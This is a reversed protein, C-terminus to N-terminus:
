VKGKEVAGPKTAPPLKPVTPTSPKLVLRGRVTAYRLGHWAAGIRALQKRAKRAFEHPDDYDSGIQEALQQWSIATESTMYATRVSLWWYLDVALPSDKIAAVVRMDFPVPNHLMENFMEEGLTVTSDFLDDQGAGTEKPDWWLQWSRAVSATDTKSFGKGSEKVWIRASFLRELQERMARATGRKGYSPVIGLERMFATLSSGLSIDRRKTRQVEQTLYAMALRPYIGFPVGTNVGPQIHLTYKGNKRTVVENVGAGRDSHPMGCHALIRMIYGVTPPAEDYGLATLKELKARAVKTTPKTLVHALLTPAGRMALSKALKTVDESGIPAIRKKKM